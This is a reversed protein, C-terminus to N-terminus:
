VAAKASEGTSNMVAVMGDMILSCGKAFMDPNKIPKNAKEFLVSIEPLAVQMMATALDKRAAGAGKDTSLAESHLVSTFLSQVLAGLPPNYAEVIAPLVQGALM